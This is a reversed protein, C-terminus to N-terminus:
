GRGVWLHAISLGATWTFISGLSFRDSGVRKVTGRESVLGPWLHM